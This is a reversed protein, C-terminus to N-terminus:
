SSLSDDEFGSSLEKRETSVAEVTLYMNKYEEEAAENTRKWNSNAKKKNAEKTM